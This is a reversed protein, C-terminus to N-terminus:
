PSLSLTGILSRSKQQAAEEAPGGAAEKGEGFTPLTDRGYPTVPSTQDAMRLSKKGDPSSGTGTNKGSIQANTNVKQLKHPKISGLFGYSSSQPPLQLGTATLWNRTRRKNPDIYLIKSETLLYQAAEISKNLERLIGNTKM